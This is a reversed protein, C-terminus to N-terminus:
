LCSNWRSTRPQTPKVLSAAIGRTYLTLVVVTINHASAPAPLLGAAQSPLSRRQRAGPPQHATCLGAPPGRLCLTLTESERDDIGPCNGYVGTGPHGLNTYGTGASAPHSHQASVSCFSASESVSRGAAKKSSRAARYTTM